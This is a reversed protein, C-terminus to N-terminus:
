FRGLVGVLLGILMGGAIRLGLLVLAGTTLGQMYNVIRDKYILSKIKFLVPNVMADVARWVPHLSNWRALYAVIRAIAMITFFSLLFALPSWVTEVILALLLGISLAGYSAVSLARSLAALVALAAIPSFDIGGSRLFSFRRFIALYPETVRVLFGAGAGLMGSPFWTMLIRVVCVLSYVSVLAALIRLILALTEM